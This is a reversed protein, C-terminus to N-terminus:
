VASSATPRLASLPSDFGLFSESFHKHQLFGLIAALEEAGGFRDLLTGGFSGLGDFCELVDVLLLSLEQELSQASQVVSEVLLM